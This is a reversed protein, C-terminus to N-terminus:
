AQDIHWTLNFSTAARNQYANSSTLSSPRYVAILFYRSKGASLQTGSNSNVGSALTLAQFSQLSASNLATGSALNCGLGGNSTSTGLACGDAPTSGHDFSSDTEVVSFLLGGCISATSSGTFEPGSVTAGSAYSFNANQANVPITTAGSAVASSVIFTQYNTGNTVVVPDGASFGRAVSWTGSVTLSSVSAGSTLASALTTQGDQYSDTCGNAAEFKIDSANLSGANTLTLKAYYVGSSDTITSGAPYAFNATHSTVAVSTSGIDAGGAATFTDTHSGSSITLTDGYNIAAGALANFSLTTTAVTTSLSSGSLATTPTALSSLNFLTDCGNGAGNNHNNSLDGASTCTNTGGNDNLILTGTAFYNSNNTVEADFSAFTGSGSAAISVLGIATLLLLYQKVRKKSM